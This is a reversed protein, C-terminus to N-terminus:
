AIKQKRKYKMFRFYMGTRKLRSAPLAPLKSSALLWRKGGRVLQWGGSDITPFYTDGSFTPFLELNPNFDSIETILIEDAINMAQRYIEGGGIIFAVEDEPVAKIAEQLSHFIECGQAVYDVNRTVVLNRRKPLPRSGFSEFTKRGMIIPHGITVRRFFRMDKPLRWPLKNEAGIIGNPGIAVLIVIRSPM